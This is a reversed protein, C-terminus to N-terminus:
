FKNEISISNQSILALFILFSLAGLQVQTVSPVVWIECKTAGVALQLAAFLFAYQWGLNILLSEFSGSIVSVAEPGFFVLSVVFSLLCFRIFVFRYSVVFFIM